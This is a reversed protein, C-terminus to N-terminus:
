CIQVQERQKSRTDAMANDAIYCYGCQLGDTATNHAATQSVPWRCVAARRRRGPWVM